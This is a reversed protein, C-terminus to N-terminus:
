LRGEYGGGARSRGPGQDDRRRGTQDKRRRGPGVLKAVAPINAHIWLPSQTASATEGADLVGALSKAPGAKLTKALAAFTDASASPGMLAFGGLKTAYM